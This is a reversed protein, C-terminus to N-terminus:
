MLLKKVNFMGNIYSSTFKCRSTSSIYNVVFIHDIHSTQVIGRALVPVAIMKVELAPIFVPKISTFHYPLYVDAILLRMRLVM